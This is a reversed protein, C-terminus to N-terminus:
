APRVFMDRYRWTGDASVVTPTGSVQGNQFAVSRLAGDATSGYFLRGGAQFLGAATSFNVGSPPAQFTQAGVIESQPAFYRYFLTSSGTVTYYLRRSAPDYVLGSLGSISFPIQAGSEPDPYLNM